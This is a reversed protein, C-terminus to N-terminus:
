NQIELSLNIVNASHMSVILNEVKNVTPMYCVATM